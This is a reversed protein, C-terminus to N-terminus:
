DFYVAVVLGFWAADPNPVVHWVHWLVFAHFGAVNSWLWVRKASLPACM